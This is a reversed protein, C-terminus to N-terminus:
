AEVSDVKESIALGIVIPLLAWLLPCVLAWPEPVPVFFLVLSGFFMLAGLVRGASAEIRRRKSVKIEGKIMWILGFIAVIM